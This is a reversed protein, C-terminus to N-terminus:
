QLDLDIELIARKFANLTIVEIIDNSLNNWDKLTWSVFSFMYVNRSASLQIFKNPYFQRLLFITHSSPFLPCGQYLEEQNIIYIM